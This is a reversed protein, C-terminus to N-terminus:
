SPLVHVLALVVLANVRHEQEIKRVVNYLSVNIPEMKCILFSPNEAVRGRKWM